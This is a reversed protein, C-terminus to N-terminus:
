GAVLVLGVATRADLALSATMMASVLLLWILYAAGFASQTEVRRRERAAPRWIMFLALPWFLLHISTGIATRSLDPFTAKMAILGIINVLMAALIWRAGSKRPAFILSAFLSLFLARMWIRVGEPYQAAEAQLASVAESVAEFM